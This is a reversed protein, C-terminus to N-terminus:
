PRYPEFHSMDRFTCYEGQHIDFEPFKEQFIKTQKMLLAKNEKKEQATLIILNYAYSIHFVYTEHDAFRIGTAESVQDRFVKLKIATANDAPEIKLSNNDIRILRMRYKEPFEIDKIALYIKKNMEEFPTDRPFKTSWGEGKRDYEHDNYLVFNTMHYSLTPLFSFKHKYPTNQAEKSFTEIEKFIPEEPTIPSVITAGLFELFSGDKSFKYGVDQTYINNM